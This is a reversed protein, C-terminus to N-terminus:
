LIEGFAQSPNDSVDACDFSRFASSMAPSAFLKPSSPCIHFRQKKGVSTSKMDDFFIPNIGREYLFRPPTRVLDPARVRSAFGETRSGLLEITM